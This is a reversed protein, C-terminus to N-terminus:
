KPMYSGKYHAMTMDITCFQELQWVFQPKAQIDDILWYCLHQKNFNPLDRGNV